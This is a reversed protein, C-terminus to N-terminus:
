IRRGRHPRTRAQVSNDFSEIDMHYAAPDAPKLHKQMKDRSSVYLDEDFHQHELM